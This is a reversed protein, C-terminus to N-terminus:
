LSCNSFPWRKHSTHNFSCPADEEEEDDEEEEEEEDDDARGMGDDKADFGPVMIGGGM